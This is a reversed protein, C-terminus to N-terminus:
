IMTEALIYLFNHEKEKRWHHHSFDLDLYRMATERRGEADWDNDFGLLTRYAQKLVDAEYEKREFWYSGALADICQEVFDRVVPGAVEGQTRVDIGVLLKRIHLCRACWEVTAGNGALKKKLDDAILCALTVLETTSAM